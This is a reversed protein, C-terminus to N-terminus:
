RQSEPSGAADGGLPHQRPVAAPPLYRQVERTLEEPSCPKPLFVDCGAREAGARETVSACATVVIVPIDRTEPDSKLKEVLQIGDMYGPLLLGTM